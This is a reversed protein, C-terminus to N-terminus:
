ESRTAAGGDLLWRVCSPIVPLIDLVMWEPRNGSKVFAESRSPPFSRVSSRPTENKPLRAARRRPDRIVRQLLRKVAEAGMM